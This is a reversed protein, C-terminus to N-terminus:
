TSWWTPGKVHPGYCVSKTHALKKEITLISKTNNYDYKTYREMYAVCKIILLITQSLLLYVFLPDLKIQMM